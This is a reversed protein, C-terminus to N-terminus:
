EKVLAVSQNQSPFIAKPKLTAFGTINLKSNLGTAFSQEETIGRLALTSKDELVTYIGTTRTNLNATANGKLFVQLYAAKLKGSTNVVANDEASIRYIDKVYLIIKAPLQDAPSITILDGFQVVKAKGFSNEAYYIGEKESQILTVEVNGTTSIRRFTELPSSIRDILNVSQANAALSSSAIVFAAMSTRVANKILTKM